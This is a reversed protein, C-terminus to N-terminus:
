TALRRRCGNKAPSHRGTGRAAPFVRGSTSQPRLRTVTWSPPRPRAAVAPGSAIAEPVDGAVDFVLLGVTRALHGAEAAEIRECRAGYGYRTVVLGELLRPWTREVAQAMRAAAKGVGVVVARGAPPVPLVASGSQVPRRGGPGRGATRCAAVPGCDPDPVVM